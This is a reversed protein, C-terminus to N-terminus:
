PRAQELVSLFSNSVGNKQLIDTTLPVSVACAAVVHPLGSPQIMLAHQKADPWLMFPVEDTLVSALCEKVADADLDANGKLPYAARYLKMLAASQVVGLQTGDEASDLSAKGILSAPLTRGWNVPSGTELNYVLPFFGYDPHAGGCSAFDSVFYSLYTPGNMTVSIKRSWGDAKTLSDESANGKCGKAASLVRADAKDLAKNIRQLAPTNGEPRPFAAIDPAIATQQHLTVGEAYTVAPFCTAAVMLLAAPVSSRCSLPFINMAIAM